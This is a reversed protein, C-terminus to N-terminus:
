TNWAEYSKRPDEYSKNCARLKKRLKQELEPRDLEEEPEEQQGEKTMAEQSGDKHNVPLKRVYNHDCFGQGKGTKMLLGVATQYM